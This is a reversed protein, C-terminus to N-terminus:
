QGRTYSLSDERNFVMWGAVPKITYQKKNFQRLLPQPADLQIFYWSAINPVNLSSQQPIFVDNMSNVNM